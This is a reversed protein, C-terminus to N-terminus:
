CSKIMVVVSLFQILFRVMPRPYCPPSWAVTASVSTENKDLSWEPITVNKPAELPDNAPPITIVVDVILANLTISSFRCMLLSNLEVKSNLAFM